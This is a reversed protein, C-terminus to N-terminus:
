ALALVPISGFVLEERERKKNKSKRLFPKVWKPIIQLEDTDFYNTYNCELCYAHSKLVEYGGVGCRPCTNLRVARDANLM